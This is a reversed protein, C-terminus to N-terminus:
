ILEPTLLSRGGEKSNGKKKNFLEMLGKGFNKYCMIAVIFTAVALLTTIIEFSALSNKAGVYKRSDSPSTTVDIIKSILYGIGTSLGLLLAAMLINSEKHVALYAIILLILASPMAICGHVWMDITTNSQAYSIVLILYQVTFGIFFFVDLKLLMLFIHYVFLQDKVTKDAGLDKFIEWGFVRYLKFSLFIWGISFIVMLVIVIIELTFTPHNSGLILGKAKHFIDFAQFSQVVSYACCILNFCTTSVIQIISRNYIGDFALLLQFFQAVIFLSHYVTLASANKELGLLDLDRTSNLTAVSTLKNYNQKNVVLIVLELISILVLQLITWALAIRSYVNEVVFFRKWSKNKYNKYNLSSDSALRDNALSNPLPSQFHPNRHLTSKDDLDM